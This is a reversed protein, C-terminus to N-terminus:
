VFLTKVYKPCCKIFIEAKIWNEIAAIMINSSAPIINAHFQKNIEVLGTNIKTM